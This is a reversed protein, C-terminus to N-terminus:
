KITYVVLFAILVVVLVFSITITADIWDHATM